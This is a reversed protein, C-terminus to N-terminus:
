FRFQLFFFLEYASLVINQFVIKNYMKIIYMVFMYM